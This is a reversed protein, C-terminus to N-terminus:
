DREHRYSEAKFYDIVENEFYSYIWDKDPEKEYCDKFDVGQFSLKEFGCLDCDYDQGDVDCDFNVDCDFEVEYFTKEGRIYEFQKLDINANKLIEIAKEWNFWDGDENNIAIYTKTLTINPM